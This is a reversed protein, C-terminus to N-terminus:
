TDQIEDLSPPDDSNNLFLRQMPYSKHLADLAKAFTEQDSDDFQKFNLLFQRHEEASEETVDKDYSEPQWQPCGVRLSQVLKRKKLPIKLVNSLNNIDMHPRNLFNNRNKMKSVASAIGKGVKKGNNWKDEFMDPFDAVLCTAVDNM